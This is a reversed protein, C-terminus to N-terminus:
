SQKRDQQLATELLAPDIPVMQRIAGRVSIAPLSFASRFRITTRTTRNEM